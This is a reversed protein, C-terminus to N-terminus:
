GVSHIPSVCGDISACLLGATDTGDFVVCCVNITNYLLSLSVSIEFVKMLLEALQYSLTPTGGLPPVEEMVNVTIDLLTDLLHLWSEEDLLWKKAMVQYLEIVKKCLDVHVALSSREMKGQEKISFVYRTHEIFMRLTVQLGVRLEERASPESGELVEWSLSWSDSTEKDSQTPDLM